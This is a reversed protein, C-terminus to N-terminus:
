TTIIRFLHSIFIIFLYLTLFTDSNLYDKILINKQNMIKLRFSIKLKNMLKNNLIPILIKNKCNKQTFKM